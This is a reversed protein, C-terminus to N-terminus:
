THTNSNSNTYWLEIASLNMHYIIVGPLQLHIPYSNINDKDKICIISNDPDYIFERASEGTTYHNIPKLNNIEEIEDTLWCTLYPDNLIASLIQMNTQKM